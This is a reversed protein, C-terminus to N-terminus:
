FLTLNEVRNNMPEIVSLEDILRRLLRRATSMLLKQRNATNSSGNAGHATM